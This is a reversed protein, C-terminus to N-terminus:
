VSTLVGAAHNIRKAIFLHSFLGARREELLWHKKDAWLDSLGRCAFGARVSIAADHRTVQNCGILAILRSVLLAFISRRPEVAVFLSTRESVIRLLQRLADEVFHHLFLNACIVTWRQSPEQLFWDPVEACLARVTWGSNQFSRRADPSLVARRDLLDLHTGKWDGPLCAAVEAMFQGDGAGLDLVRCSNPSPNTVQMQRALIRANGMWANIRRLDRRSGRALPDDVPLEDLWEPEVVRKM